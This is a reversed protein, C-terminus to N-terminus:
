CMGREKLDEIYAKMFEKEFQERERESEIIEETDECVITEAPSDKLSIFRSLLVLIYAVTKPVGSSLMFTKCTAVVALLLFTSFIKENKQMIVNKPDM